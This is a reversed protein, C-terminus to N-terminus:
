ALLLAMCFSASSHRTFRVLRVLDYSSLSQELNLIVLVWVVLLQWGPRKRFDSVLLWEMALAALAAV